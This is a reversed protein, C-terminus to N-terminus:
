IRHSRPGRHNWGREAMISSGARNRRVMKEGGCENAEGACGLAAAKEGCATKIEGCSENAVKESGCRDAKAMGCDTNSATKMSDEGCSPPSDANGGCGGGALAPTVALALIGFTLACLTIIKKM